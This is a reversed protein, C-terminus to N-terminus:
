PWITLKFNVEHLVSTQQCLWAWNNVLTTFLSDYDNDYEFDFVDTITIFYDTPYKVATTSVKHLAYFLDADSAKTFTIGANPSSAINKKYALFKSNTSIKEYFIGGTNMSAFAVESYDEYAVSHEVMTAACEYGNNRAIEAAAMWALELNSTPVYSVSSSATISSSSMDSSAINDIYQNLEENTMTSFIEKANEMTIQTAANVTKGPTIGLLVTGLLFISVVKKIKKLNM